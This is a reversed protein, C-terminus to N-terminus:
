PVENKKNEMLYTPIVLDNAYKSASLQKSFM